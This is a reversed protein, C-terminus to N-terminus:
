PGRDAAGGYRLHTDDVSLYYVATGVKIKGDIDGVATRADVLNTAAIVLGIGRLQELPLNQLPAASYM